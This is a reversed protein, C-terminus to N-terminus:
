LKEHFGRGYKHLILYVTVLVIRPYGSLANRHGREGAVWQKRGCRGQDADDWLRILAGFLVLMM